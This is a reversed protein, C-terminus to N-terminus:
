EEYNRILYLIIKAMKKLFERAEALTTVNNNIYNDINDFGVNNRLDLLETKRTADLAEEAEIAAKKADIEEQTWPMVEPVDANMDVKYIAPDPLEDQEPIYLVDFDPNISLATQVTQSGRIHTRGSGYIEKTSTNYIIYIEM